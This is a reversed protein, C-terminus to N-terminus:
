LRGLKYVTPTTQEINTEGGGGGAVVVVVIDDDSVVVVNYVVCRCRAM